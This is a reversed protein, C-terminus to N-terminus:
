WLLRDLDVGAAAASAVDLCDFTDVFAALEGRRTTEAITQLAVTTRGSSTPGAIESLQGRPFGGQLSADLGPAGTRLAASEDRRGIPPLSSTLTRDLKKARLATELTALAQNAM